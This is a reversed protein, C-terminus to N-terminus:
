KIIMSEFFKLRSEEKNRVDLHEIQHRPVRTKSWKELFQLIQPSYADLCPGEPPLSLVYDEDGTLDTDRYKLIVPLGLALYERVKLPSAEAMNKSKLNLTGVGALCKSAITRYEALELNGYFFLNSENQDRTDGIIHVDINQHTRAFEILEEIGHWPQNASGVFFLGPTECAQPLLPQIRELNIGNIIAIKPIGSSFHHENNNKLENSVYIAGSINSYIFRSFIRFLIYKSKSRLKLEQAVLSQIELVTPIKSNPVRIPFSDRLYILSPNSNAALKLLNFRNKIKSFPSKDLFIKAAPDLKLWHTKSKEDTIVFLQVRYGANRWFTVQDLIKKYVGSHEADYCALAYAIKMQELM